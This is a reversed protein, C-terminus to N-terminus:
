IKIQMYKKSEDNNLLVLFKQIFKQITDNNKKEKEM